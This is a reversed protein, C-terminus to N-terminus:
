VGNSKARLLNNKCFAYWLVSVFTDKAVLSFVDRNACHSNYKKTMMESSLVAKKRHWFTLSKMWSKKVELNSNQFTSVKFNGRVYHAAVATKWM